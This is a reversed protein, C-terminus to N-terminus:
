DMETLEVMKEVSVVSRTAHKERPCDLVQITRDGGVSPGSIVVLAGSSDSDCGLLYWPTTSSFAQFHSLSRAWRANKAM